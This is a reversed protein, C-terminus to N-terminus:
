AADVRQQFLEHEGEVAHDALPFRGGPGIGVLQAREDGSLEGATV